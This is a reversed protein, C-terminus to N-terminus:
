QGACRWKEISFFESASSLSFGMIFLSNMGPFPKELWLNQLKLIVTQFNKGKGPRNTPKSNRNASFLDCLRDIFNYYSGLPALTDPTCGILFALLNDSGLKEIWATISTFGQDLMFVLSRLIQPQNVAPRGLPPYCSEVLGM